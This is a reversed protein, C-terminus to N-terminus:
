LTQNSDIESRSGTLKVLKFSVCKFEEGSGCIALVISMKGVCISLSIVLVQLSNIDVAVM